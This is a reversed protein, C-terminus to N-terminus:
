QCELLHPSLEKTTLGFGYPFLPADCGETKLNKFDFPLQSDSRLWTYPLKGSFEVDGFLVDTIGEAESGPLWAAVFADSLPLADTIVLPRGSYLIVVVRQSFNKARALMEIQTPDLRLSARDGVGEAYPREALVVIAVDAKLANGQAGKITEFRGYREYEVRTNPSVSKKIASLLATGGADNVGQWDLTWGGNQFGTKDVAEGAVFITAVDKKLPLTSEQGPSNLSENQLLVLSEQVAKRALAKHQANDLIGTAHLSPIPQEFLGKKLKVALIRRVADDIRAQPVDGNNVAQTLASIFKQYEYPVMNMDVGANIATVVAQYYDPSIQDMGGWDSVVFGKFGLEGKLVDTLLKKQAHMKVGNWSSFSVMVTEAGADLAGKYPPLFLERLSAEDMQADGQDLLYRQEIYQKSTGFKTGGDGLFHKPTALVSQLDALDTKGGIMQLGRVYASSLQTTLETNESFGEYTRGWRIDQPVAVVPAFNWHMATASVQEATARGIEQVLKADRTAGLGINQPFYTAGEVHTHGHIADIGFLLPIGLRTKLAAQEYSEALARWAQPSNDRYPGGGSLVSGIAYQTVQAPTISNNEVQTMQGIKEAPTMRALLDEVRKEVTQSADQYIAKADVATAVATADSEAGVSTANPVVQTPVATAPSIVYLSMSSPPLTLLMGNQIELTGSKEAKHKADFLYIEAKGFKADGAFHIPKTQEQESLNLLVLTLTGDDRRAGYVSVDKDDSSAFVLEDGFQKYLLYVYYVPRPDYHDFIGLAGLSASMQLTFQAIIDVRQRIMRGLSDAVYLAGNVSDATTKGEIKGSWDSNFETVAIPLDRGTATRIRARLKPIIEDWERASAFLDQASPAADGREKPFPYRHISVVDVLDGNAKLFEDLWDRGLSDKPDVDPTGTFQHIDPGILRITPDQAKMAQAFKRWEVNYKETTWEPFRVGYLSPENGISWYRINYKQDQTYKLLAVAYGPTSDRLRVSVQPEANVMRVLMMYTTLHQDNLDNEDGWNGGPFRIFTIGSKKFHEWLEVTLFAWPGHNTGLSYRSVNGQDQGADVFVGSPLPTPTPTALPTSTALLRTPPPLAATPTPSIQGACGILFFFVVIRFGRLM